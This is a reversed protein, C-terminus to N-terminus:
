SCVHGHDLYLFMSPESVLHGVTAGGPLVCCICGCGGMEEPQTRVHLRCAAALMALHVVQEDQPLSCTTVNGPVSWVSGEATTVKVVKRILRNFLGMLQGSPLEIEKELQDVSKHQLGLGLLLAQLVSLRRLPQRGLGKGLLPCQSRPRGIMVLAIQYLVDVAVTYKLIKERMRKNFSGLM